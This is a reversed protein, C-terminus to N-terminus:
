QRITVKGNASEVLIDRGFILPLNLPEHGSPVNFIVPYNYEKVANSIIEYATHGFPVTNDHMQNMGGVLLGKLNKLKDARKLAQVMRDIHYLYEDLDELFLVCDYTQICSNSGLLSYLVSLNGGVLNGSFNRVNFNMLSADFSWENNGTFLVKQLANVSPMNILEAQMNIAMPAHLTEVFVHEAIHSHLVTIDSFGIIWKPHSKFFTFNIKDIIRVTGYGGRACFVAKVDDRNLYNQLENARLEDSGAFQNEEAFLRENYIVELGWSSLLEIAPQMEARSVKRATAVLAVKDGPKLPTLM